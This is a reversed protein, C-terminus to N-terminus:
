PRIQRQLDLLRQYVSQVNDIMELRPGMKVYRAPGRSSNFNHSYNLAGPTSIDPRLLITGSGDAKQELTLDALSAIPISEVTTNRGGTRIIIRDRSFAYITKSRRNAEAFFRGFVLYLGIFVFPVGFLVFPIPADMSYAMVVWFISFGCWVISFPIMIADSSRLALGSKPRGAWILEEGTGLIPLLEREIDRDIM